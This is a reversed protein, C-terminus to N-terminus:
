IKIHIDLPIKAKLERVLFERLKLTEAADLVLSYRPVQLIEIRSVIKFALKDQYKTQRKLIEVYHEMQSKRSLLHGARSGKPIKFGERRLMNALQWVRQRSTKFRKALYAGGCNVNLNNIIEKILGRRLPNIRRRSM